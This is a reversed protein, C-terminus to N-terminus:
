WTFPLRGLAWHAAFRLRVANRLWVAKPCCRPLSRQLDLLPHRRDSSTSSFCQWLQADHSAAYRHTLLSVTRLLFKSKAAACFLLLLWAAQLDEVAAIRELLQAHVGSKLQNPTATGLGGCHGCDRHGAQQRSRPPRGRRDPGGYGM